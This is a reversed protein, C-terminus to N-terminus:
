FNKSYIGDAPVRRTKSYEDALQSVTSILESCPNRLVFSESPM